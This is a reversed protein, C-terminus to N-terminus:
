RLPLGMTLGWSARELTRFGLHEYFGIANTNRGDVGMHVGPAGRERLEHLLRELLTRGLGFGRTRELLDIHFHAPYEALVAAPMEDPEHILHILRGSPTAEHTRPYRERLPPWWHEEAWAAFSATDDTSVMYGAIGQGDAVVLQCGTGQALYPGVYVHGPLDPDSYLATADKGREAARLCVRYAGAMDALGAREVRFM